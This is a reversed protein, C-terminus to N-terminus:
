VGDGALGDANFAFFVGLCLRLLLWCRLAAGMLMVPLTVSLVLRARLPAVMVLWFVLFVVRVASSPVKVM